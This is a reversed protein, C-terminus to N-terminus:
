QGPKPQPVNREWMLKGDSDFVRITMARETRKGSFTLTAFNRQGVRTGEVRLTNDEKPDYATSTLPSVTLDRIINGDPLTLESLETFHRDGSLFLVGTIGEAQIRDIIAQREKPYNAFNEYQAVTNLFQGGVAVLKFPAKSFKLGEILRDIQATGLIQPEGSKLDARTRFSRDDLLFFDIDAHSFQTGVGGVGPQEPTPNPWFLRFMERSTEAHVFSRDGDNPGFDHDDWIAYNPCTTLLRQMEPMSRTHTYRHLFGSRSDWDPERLYINDGLWLMLDPKKDAISNYIQYGDGYPKGPRDFREENVYNCSGMAVTFEPPDTRWQWLPQTTFHYVDSLVHESRDEPHVLRYEYTTGPILGDLKVNRLSQEELPWSWKNSWKDMSDNAIRYQIAIDPISYRMSWITAENMTVPGLMVVPNITDQAHLATSLLLAPALLLRM